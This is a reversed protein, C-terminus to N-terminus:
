GGGPFFGKSAWTQVFPTHGGRRSTFTTCPILGDVMNDELTWDMSMGISQVAQCNQIIICDNSQEVRARSTTYHPWAIFQVFQSLRHHHFLKHERVTSTGM